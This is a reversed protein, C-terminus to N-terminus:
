ASRESSSATTDTEGTELWLVKRRRAFEGIIEMASIGDATWADAGTQEMASGDAAAQGGIIVPIDADVAHVAAVTQRVAQLATATTAGIGVAVLRHAGAAAGAFAEPPVNAGLELCTFGELRVLDAVVAIPLTHHEGSPAGFVVTGRTRGPRRFRTGLRAVLRLATATALYEEAVPSDPLASRGSIENIAGGLLDVYCEAPSHGAALAQELVRWAGPEDGIALPEKLRMRWDTGQGTAGNAADDERAQFCSLAVPDVVWGTGVKRAELRGTRVYRYATMYHVGLAAAAQKLNLETSRDEGMPRRYGM